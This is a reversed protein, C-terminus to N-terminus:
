RSTTRFRRIREELTWTLVPVLIMPLLALATMVPNIRIMVVLALPIAVLFGLTSTAKDRGIPTVIWSIDQTIRNIADGPSPGNRVAPNDLIGKFVNIRILARSLNAFLPSVFEYAMQFVTNALNVALLLLVLLWINRAAAADGTLTDFVERLVLGYLLPTSSSIIILANAVVFLVLRFRILRLLFGATTM